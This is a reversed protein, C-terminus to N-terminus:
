SSSVRSEGIDPGYGKAELAAAGAATLRALVSGVLEARAKGNESRIHGLDANVFPESAIGMFRALAALEVTPAACLSEYRLEFLRGAPGLGLQVAERELHLVHDQWHRIYTEMLDEDSRDLVYGAYRAHGLKARDKKMWSLAVARGDRYLHIFRADPFLEIVKRLMFTVM